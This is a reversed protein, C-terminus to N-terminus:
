HDEGGAIYYREEEDKKPYGYNDQQVGELFRSNLYFNDNENRNNRINMENILILCDENSM